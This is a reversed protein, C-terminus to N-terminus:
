GRTFLFKRGLYFNGRSKLSIYASTGSLFVFTPACLHTIWRTFFLMPTTTDLNTPNQTLSTVHMFDRTHDLAMIIMVIGRMFDISHIRKMNHSPNSSLLTPETM